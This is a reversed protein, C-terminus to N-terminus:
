FAGLVGGARCPGGGSSLQLLLLMIGGDAKLPHTMRPLVGAHCRFDRGLSCGAPADTEALADMDERPLPGM